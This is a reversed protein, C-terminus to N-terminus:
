HDFCTATNKLTKIISMSNTNNQFPAYNPVFVFLKQGVNPDYKMYGTWRMRGKKDNQNNRIIVPYNHLNQLDDQTIGLRRNSEKQNEARQEQVGETPILHEM